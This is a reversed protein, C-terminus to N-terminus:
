QNEKSLAVPHLYKLLGSYAQEPSLWSEDSHITETELWDKIIFGWFKASTTGSVGNDDEDYEEFTYRIQVLESVRDEVEVPWRKLIELKFRNMSTYKM